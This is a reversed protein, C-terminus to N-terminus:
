DFPFPEAGHVVGREDDDHKDDREHQEDDECADWAALDDVLLLADAAPAAERVRVEGLEAASAAPLKSLLSSSAVVAEEDKM